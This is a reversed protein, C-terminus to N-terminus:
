KPDGQSVGEGPFVFRSDLIFKVTYGIALGIWAGVLEMDTGPFCIKFATEFGFYIITTFVAFLMYIRLQRSTKEMETLDKEGFVITKDVLFKFVFGALTGAGIYFFYSLELPTGLDIFISNLRPIWINILTKVLKQVGTNIFSALVAFMM